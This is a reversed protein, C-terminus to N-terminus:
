AEVYNNQDIVFINKSKYRALNLDKLSITNKETIEYICPNRFM